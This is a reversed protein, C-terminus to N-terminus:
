VSRGEGEAAISGVSAATVLAEFVDGVSGRVRGATRLEASELNAPLEHGTSTRRVNQKMNAAIGSSLGHITSDGKWKERKAAHGVIRDDRGGPGNRHADVCPGRTPDDRETGAEGKRAGIRPRASSCGLAAVGGTPIRDSTVTAVRPVTIM